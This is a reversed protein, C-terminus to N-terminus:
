HVVGYKKGKGDCSACKGTANCPSCVMPDGGMYSNRAIGKGDCHPCRGSGHCNPCTYYGHKNGPYQGDTDTDIASGSSNGHSAGSSAGGQIYDTKAKLFRNYDAETVPIDFVNADLHVQVRRWDKSVTVLTQGTVVDVQTRFQGFGEQVPYMNYKYEKFVFEDGSQDALYASSKFVLSATFSVFIGYDNRTLSLWCLQGKDNLYYLTRPLEPITGYAPLTVPAFNARGTVTNGTSAAAATTKAPAAAPRSVAAPTQSASTDGGTWTGRQKASVRAIWEDASAYNQPLTYTRFQRYFHLASDYNREMGGKGLEFFSGLRFCSYWYDRSSPEANGIARMYWRCAKEQDFVPSSTLDYCEALPCYAATYKAEAAKELWMAATAYDRSESAAMGKRYCEAPSLSAAAPTQVTTASSRSTAAAMSQVAGRDAQIVAVLSTQRSTGAPLADHWARTAQELRDFPRKVKEEIRALNEAKRRLYPVIFEKFNRQMLKYPSAAKQKPAILHGSIDYLSATENDAVLVILTKSLEKETYLEYLGAKRLWKKYDESENVRFIDMGLFTTPQAEILVEGDANMLGRRGDALEYEITHPAYAPTTFKTAVVESVPKFSCDVLQMKGTESSMGFLIPSDEQRYIEVPEIYYGEPSLRRGHFDILYQKQYEGVSAFGKFIHPPWPSGAESVWYGDRDILYYRNAYKVYSVIDEQGFSLARDFVCPIVCKGNPDFYGYKGSSDQRAELFPLKDSQGFVACVTLLVFCITSFLTKM